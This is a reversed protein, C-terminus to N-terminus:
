SGNSLLSEVSNVEAEVAQLIEIAEAASESFGQRAMDEDEAIWAIV